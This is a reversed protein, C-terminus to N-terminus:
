KIWEFSFSEEESGVNTPKRDLIIKISSFINHPKAIFNHSIRWVLLKMRQNFILILDINMKCELYVHQLQVNHTHWKLNNIFFIM